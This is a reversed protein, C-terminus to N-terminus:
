GSGSREGAFYWHHKQPDKRLARIKVSTGTTSQSDRNGCIIDVVEKDIKEIKNNSNEVRAAISGMEGSLQNVARIVPSLDVYVSDAM